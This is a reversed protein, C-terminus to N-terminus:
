RIGGGVVAAGKYLPHRAHLDPHTYTTYTHTYTRVVPAHLDSRRTHPARRFTVTYPHTYTM